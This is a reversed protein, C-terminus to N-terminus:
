EPEEPLLIVSPLSKPQEARGLLFKPQVTITAHNRRNVSNASFAKRQSDHCCPMNDGIRYTEAATEILNLQLQAGLKQKLLL